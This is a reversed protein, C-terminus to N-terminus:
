KIKEYFYFDSFSTFDCKKPNFPFRNPIYEKLKWNNSQYKDIWDTFKRHKVHKAIIKDYNSSYICIFKESSDFLNKMYLNYVNDELLHFIVDLSVSLDAKKKNIFKDNIHLFMKTSDNYFKKKCIDIATKSVDYGIYQKYNILSIQNCDGSGWEIVTKIKNINLFNNIIEAKFKALNNYSGSGSNGGNAYRKEWYDSSYFFNLNSSNKNKFITENKTMNNNNYQVIEQYYKIFFIDSFILTIFIIIKIDKIRM